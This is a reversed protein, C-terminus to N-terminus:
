ETKKSKEKQKGRGREGGRMGPGRNQMMEQRIADWKAWQEESLLAQLEEDQEDRLTQMTGRMSSWDGQSAERAEQMKKAYVLLVAEVEATLDDDLGLSDQMMAAQQEARQGPDMRGMRGGGEPPQAYTSIVTLSLIALTFLFQFTKKM